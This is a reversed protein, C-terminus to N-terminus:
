VEVVHYVTGKTIRKCAIGKERKQLVRGFLRVKKEGLKLKGKKQVRQLIDIALLWEGEDDSSAARFYKDFLQEEVSFQQFEANNATNMAEEEKTFWYREGNQLAAVAQAYLQDYNIRCDTHIQGTIRICIFRRSGTPDSLLDTNNCTAIFSAYRRMAEVTSGYPRRVNVVPKQLLHKLFSQHSNSVSDFEDINVLAFRTLYLEADNKKGFDISDTYYNKRLDTPLLNLCFTSKGCGQSGILLPSVSNAYKRDRQQWHAVMSLMWIYFLNRWEPNDCPVTDALERIYDHGDWHPLHNLYDELPNYFRVRNSHVYRNIDKDWAAIGELQADISISNLARDDVNSFAYYFAGRSRYEVCGKMVNHRLEYRRKMFEEIQLNLIREPRVCPKEGFRKGLLYANHLIDRLLIEHVSLSSHLRAYYVVDEEPLGSKFCNEALATLFPILNEGKDLGECTELAERMSSQFLESVQESREWGPMMRNLPNEEKELEDFFTPESPMELPQPMCVPVADPNYYVGPDFGLRCCCNVHPEKVEIQRSLQTQYHGVAKSYAHAHFLEAEKETQPLKGDPLTFPVVIKVSKGGSGVFAALTMLSGAAEDRVKEAEALNMLRNVELLVLGNYLHLVQAGDEKKFSAGFLVAPVNKVYKDDKGRVGYKLYHRMVSVPEGKAEHKIVEMLDSMEVLKQTKFDGRYQTIKM